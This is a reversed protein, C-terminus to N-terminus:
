VTTPALTVVALIGRGIIAPTNSEGGVVTDLAGLGVEQGDALLLQAQGQLPIGFQGGLLQYPRNGSLEVIAVRGSVKSTRAILNLDRIPGAPLTASTAAGGDFRLPRHRELQRTTGDITIALREGGIVTLIRTMGHFMSFNGESEVDAISLRWDWDDGGTALPEGAAGLKGSVIQRTLGGGNRWREAHLASYAIVTGPSLAQNQATSM